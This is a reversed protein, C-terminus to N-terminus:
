NDTQDEIQEFAFLDVIGGIREQENEESNQQQKNLQIGLIHLNLQRTKKLSVGLRECELQPLHQHVCRVVREANRGGHECLLLLLEGGFLYCRSKDDKM